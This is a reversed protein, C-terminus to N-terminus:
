PTKLLSSLSLSSLRAIETHLSGGQADMTVVAPFDKAELAWIAEPSGFEELKYVGKISKIFKALYVSAGGIASAYIAGYKQMAALVAKNMGGKGIIICVGYRSILQPAYANMRASTTPGAVIVHQESGQGALIPGCHYVAAGKLSFPLDRPEAEGILFKHARDRATYILGSIYIKDGVKLSRVKKESVPTKIHVESM